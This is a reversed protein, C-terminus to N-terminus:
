DTLNSRALCSAAHISACILQWVHKMRLVTRTSPSKGSGTRGIGRIEIAIGRAEPPAEGAVIRRAAALDSSDKLLRLLNVGDAVQEGDTLIVIRAPAHYGHRLARVREVADILAALIDTGHESARVNGAEKSAASLMRELEARKADAFLPAAASIRTSTECITKIGAISSGFRNIVLYSGQSIAQRAVDDVAQAYESRLEPKSTSESGDTDVVTVPQEVEISVHPCAARVDTHTSSQTVGHAAAFVGIALLAAVGLLVRWRKLM